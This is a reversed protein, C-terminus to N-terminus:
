SMEKKTIRLLRRESNSLILSGNESLTAAEIEELRIHSRIDPEHLHLMKEDMRIKTINGNWIVRTHQGVMEIEFVSPNNFINSLATRLSLQRNQGEPPQNISEANADFVGDRVPKTEIHRSQNSHIFADFHDKNLAFKAKHFIYIKVVPAGSGDFFQLSRTKGHNDDEETFLYADEIISADIHATIHDGSLCVIQNNVSARVEGLPMHVGARNSFACLVRGWTEIPSLLASINAKLRVAGSGIRSAILATEPVSLIKAAEPPHIHAQRTLLDQWATLVQDPDHLSPTINLNNNGM